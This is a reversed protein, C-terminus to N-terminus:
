SIVHVNKPWFVNFIRLIIELKKEEKKEEEFDLMKKFIKKQVFFACM